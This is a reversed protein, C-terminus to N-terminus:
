ARWAPSFTIASEGAKLKAFKFCCKEIYFRRASPLILGRSLFFKGGSVRIEDGYILTVDDAFLDVPRGNLLAEFGDSDDRIGDGYIAPLKGLAPVTVAATIAIVGGLFWRRSVPIPM